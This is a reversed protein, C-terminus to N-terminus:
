DGEGAEVEELEEAEETAEDEDEASEDRPLAKRVAEAVARCLMPGDNLSRIRELHM